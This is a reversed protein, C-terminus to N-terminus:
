SPNALFRRQWDDLETHTAGHAVLWGAAGGDYEDFRALVREIAQAPASLLDRVAGREVGPPLFPAVKLRRLVQGMNQDTRVYDAVVADERVGAARLLLASAVGTRDKGAACHILVSGEAELAIRFVEVLKKPAQDLMFEYLEILDLVAGGAAERADELLSVRRVTTDEALPHGSSQEHSDRLDIVVKPPWEPLGEPARDGAHPADSRYLVGSRTMVGHGTPMEGLDRVNVLGDNAGATPEIGTM